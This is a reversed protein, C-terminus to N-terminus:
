PPRSATPLERPRRPHPAVRPAGRPAEGRLRGEPHSVLGAEEGGVDVDQFLHDADFHPKGGPWWALLTVPVVLDVLALPALLAVPIVLALLAVLAVPSLCSILKM